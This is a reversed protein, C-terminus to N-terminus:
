PQTKYVFIAALNGGDRRAAVYLRRFDPSLFGTRAGKRTKIRTLERYRDPSEQQIVAIAGEGGIAYLRSRTPDYFIDDSDGVTPLSQVINGTATDLVVLRAPSRCVVFLRHHEEDLAMPYNAQPGGTHWTAIVARTNRDLVAIKRSDPLNIFIRPGNKELQFSEPHADLKLDALRKGTKDVAGLAGSGYGVYVTEHAADFRINDADEGYPVTKLLEFSSGDFVRLSGDNRNAVYLRNTTPEYLVGQPERLGSISRLLTGVKLDLVEVSNNGLAAIFLRDGKTDISFHDIRGQVTPLPITRELELAASQQAQVAIEGPWLLSLFLLTLRSM